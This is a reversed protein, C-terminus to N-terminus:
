EQEPLCFKNRVHFYICTSCILLLANGIWIFLFRDAITNNLDVAIIILLAISGILASIFGLKRQNARIRFKWGFFFGLLHTFAISTISFFVFQLKDAWSIGSSSFVPILILLTLSSTKLHQRIFFYYLMTRNSVPFSTLLNWEPAPRLTFWAAGTALILLIPISIVLVKTWFVQFSPAHVWKLDYGVDAPSRLVLMLFVAVLFCIEITTIRDLHHRLYNYYYRLRTKILLTLM